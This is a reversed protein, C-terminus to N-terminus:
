KEDEKPRYIKQMLQKIIDMKKYHLEIQKLYFKHFKDEIM